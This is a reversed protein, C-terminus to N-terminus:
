THRSEAKRVAAAVQKVLLVIRPGWNSAITDDVSIVDHNTIAAIASWGPRAAVKAYSLGCCSSDSLVILDPDAAVIYEPSLQVYTGAKAAGDAIDRLGLITFAQGVFTKSTLSYYTQDLEDYVKLPPHEHKVTAVAASIQRQMQAVLASAQRGHGTVNGLALIQGYIGAFGAPAAELLVPIHLAALHQEVNSINDAIVVLDPKYAAIAEVNPQFASLKTHPANRPYTSYSDVAVVQKGAGIAFLDETSADSMSVIRTPHPPLLVGNSARAGAGAARATGHLFVAAALLAAACVLAAAVPVFRRPRPAAPSISM